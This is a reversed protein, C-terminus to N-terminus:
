TYQEQEIPLYPFADHIRLWMQACTSIPICSTHMAMHACTNRYDMAALMRHRSCAVSLHAAGRVSLHSAGPVSLHAASSRRSQGCASARHQTSTMWEYRWRCTVSSEFAHMFTNKHMKSMDSSVVKHAQKPINCVKGHAAVLIVSRLIEYMALRAGTRM